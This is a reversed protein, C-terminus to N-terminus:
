RVEVGRPHPHPGGRPRGHYVGTLDDVARYVGDGPDAVLPQPDGFAGAETLLGPLPAFVDPDLDQWVASWGREKHPHLADIVHNVSCFAAKTGSAIVWLLNPLGFPAPRDVYGGWAEWYLKFDTYVAPVATVPEPM